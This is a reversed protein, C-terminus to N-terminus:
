RKVLFEAFQRNIEALLAQANPNDKIAELEAWKEEFDRTDTFFRNHKEFESVYVALASQMEASTLDVRFGSSNSFTLGDYPLKGTKNPTYHALFVDWKNAPEGKQLPMVFFNGQTYVGVIYDTKGKETREFYKKDAASFSEGTVDDTYDIYHWHVGEVGYAATSRVEQDTNLLELFKAAEEKHRSQVPIANVVGPDAAFTYAPTFSYQSVTKQNNESSYDNTLQIGWYPFAMRMELFFRHEKGNFVTDEKMVVRVDGDKVMTDFAKVSEKTVDYNPSEPNFLFDFTKAEKDFADLAIMDKTEAVGDVGNFFSNIHSEHTAFYVTVYNPDNLNTNGDVINVGLARYADAAADLLPLLFDLHRRQPEINDIRDQRIYEAFTVESKDGDAPMRSAETLPVKVDGTDLFAVEEEVIFMYNDWGVEKNTSLGYLAGDFTAGSKLAPNVLELTQPMFESLTNLDTFYGDLANQSFNGAWNAAFMIDMDDGAALMTGLKATYDGYGIHRIEINAGIRDRVLDSLRENVAPLDAPADGINYWVLTPLDEPNVNTSGGDNSANDCAGLSVVMVVALLLTSLKKLM